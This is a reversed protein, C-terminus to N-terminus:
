LNELLSVKIWKVINEILHTDSGSFQKKLCLNEEPQSSVICILGDFKSLDDLFRKSFDKPETGKPKEYLVLVIQKESDLLDWYTQLDLMTKPTGDDSKSCGQKVMESYIKGSPNDRDIFKSGDICILKVSDRLQSDTTLADNLAQPLNDFDLSQIIQILPKSGQWAQYFNEYAMNQACHWLLEYCCMYMDWDKQEEIQAPLCNKLALVAPKSQHRQLIQRLSWTAGRSIQKDPSTRILNILTNIAEQHTTDTYRLARVTEELIELNQQSDRIISILLRIANQDNKGIRGLSSIAELLVNEDTTPNIIVDILLNITEPHGPLTDGLNKVANLQQFKDASLRVENILSEIVETNSPDIKGSNVLEQFSTYQIIVSFLEAAQPHNPEIKGLGQAAISRVLSDSNNCLSALLSIKEQNNKGIKALAIVAQIGIGPVYSQDILSMLTAIAQPHGPVIEGLSEAVEIRSYENPTPTVLLDILCEVVISRHTKPLIAKAAEKIQRPVDIQQEQCEINFYGFSWKVIQNVIERTKNHEQSLESIAEAGLLYSRFNYYDGCKDEFEVLSNIFAEKEENDVDERGLWLLIVEKWQPEFIRYTGKDLNHPVHKLFYDWDPIAKAAFYEKFSDHLFEYVEQYPSVRQLWGLQNIALQFLDEDSEGLESCVVSYSLPYESKEIAQKALQGLSNLLPQKQPKTSEPISRDYDTNLFWQILGAKTSPLQREPQWTRCLFTLYLPNTVLEKIRQYRPQNLEAWLQEADTTFWADICQKIQEIGFGLNQYTDFKLVELADKSTNWISTRCTLVVRCKGVWGTLKETLQSGQEEVGDLLFCINGNELRQELNVIWEPPLDGLKGSAKQLWEKM